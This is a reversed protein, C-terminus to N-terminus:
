GDEALVEEIRVDRRDPEPLQEFRVGPLTARGQLLALAVRHMGDMMRGDPGLVVPRSTDVDLALRAHEVCQRVTPEVGPAAWYATDLEAVDDVAVQVVPLDRALAELRTVEWADFRGADRGTPWFHWQRAM